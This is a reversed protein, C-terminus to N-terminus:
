NEMAQKMGFIIELNSARNSMKYCATKKHHPTTLGAWEFACAPSGGKTL